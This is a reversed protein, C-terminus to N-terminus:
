FKGCSIIALLGSAAGLDTFYARSFKFGTCDTSNSHWVTDVFKALDMVEQRHTIRFFVLHEMKEWSKVCWSSEPLAFFSLAKQLQQFHEGSCQALLVTKYNYKVYHKKKKLSKSSSSHSGKLGSAKYECWFTQGLAGVWWVTDKESDRLLPRTRLVIDSPKHRTKIVLLPISTIWMLCMISM